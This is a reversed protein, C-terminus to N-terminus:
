LPRCALHGTPEPDPEHSVTATTLLALSYGSYFKKERGGDPQIGAESPLREPPPRARWECSKRRAKQKGPCAKTSAGKVFSVEM